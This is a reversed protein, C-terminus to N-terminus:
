EEAAVKIASMPCSDAAERLEELSATGAGQYESQGNGNLRFARPAVQTCMSVGACADHSVEVRIRLNRRGSM